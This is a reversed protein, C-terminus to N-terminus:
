TQPFESLGADETWMLGSLRDITVGDREEFRPIPWDIGFRMEGDQGSGSCDMLRGDVDYCQNQDTKIVGEM